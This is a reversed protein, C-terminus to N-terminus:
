APVAGPRGPTDQSEPPRASVRWALALGVMVTILPFPVLNYYLTFLGFILITTCAAITVPHRDRWHRAFRIVFFGMFLATGIYGNTFVVRYLHGHTGFPPSGCRPCADSSVAVASEFNGAVDRTTGYGVVPSSLGARLTEEALQVRGQNSHPTELRLTALELLPTAMVLVGGVLVAAVMAQLALLKGAAALRAVTYLGAIGLALWVGRNLSYVIPVISALLILVGLPRRWGGGRGLWALVFFPLFLALNAGWENTYAFPASPRAEEYGLFSQLQAVSPHVLERVFPIDTVSGPLLYEVASNFQLNPALLGLYGGAVTVVFLFAFLRVVRKTPLERESLNGVYLFVVTAALHLAFRLAFTLIRSPGGGPVAGPVDVWLVFVSGALWLLYLLWWGFGRPVHINGRRMLEIAMPVALIPLILVSLGLVWWLPFGLCLASLPWGVRWTNGRVPRDAETPAPPTGHPSTSIVVETESGSRKEPARVVFIGASKIVAGTPGDDERNAGVGPM